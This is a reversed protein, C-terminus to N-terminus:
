AAGGLREADAIFADIWDDPIGLGDRREKALRMKIALSHGDPAPCRLVLADMALCYAEMAENEGDTGLPIADSTTRLALYYALLWDFDRMTFQLESPKRSLTKLQSARDVM